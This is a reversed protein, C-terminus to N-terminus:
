LKQFGHMQGKQFPLVNSLVWLLNLGAKWDECTRVSLHRFVNPVIRYDFCSHLM